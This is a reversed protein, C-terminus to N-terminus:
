LVTAGSDKDRICIQFLLLSRKSIYLSMKDEEIKSFFLLQCQCCVNPTNEELGVAAAASLKLPGFGSTWASGGTIAAFHVNLVSCINSIWQLIMATVRVYYFGDQDMDGLVYIIDGSRFGLEAQRNFYRFISAFFGRLPKFHFFSSQVHRQSVDSDVNPSSEWPDYDFLAVMRQVVAEDQISGADSLEPTLSM